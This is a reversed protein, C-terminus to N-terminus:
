FFVSRREKRLAELMSQITERVDTVLRSIMADEDDPDGEFRMPEGFHLLYRVPLPLIGLVPILMQAWIPIAPLGIRKGLNKLNYLTPYQEESGVVAVPVIPTQTALALRMFGLSFNKLQYAQDVTKSIGEMGEPFALLAEGRSLLRQANEPTGVAMGVRAYFTSVYPLSPIWRDVLSRVLRPPEKDLVLAATIMAGDIPLQGAHNAVLIVPGEPINELGKPICRFYVKYLFSAGVATKYLATPDLGFPDVGAEGVSGAARTLREDLDNLVDNRFTRVSASGKLVLGGITELLDAFLTSKEQKSSIM